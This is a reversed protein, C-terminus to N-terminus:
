FGPSNFWLFYYIEIIKKKIYIKIAMGYNTEKRVDAKTNDGTSIIQVYSPAKRTVNEKDCDSLIFCLLLNKIWYIDFTYM